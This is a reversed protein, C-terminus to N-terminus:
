VIACGVKRSPGPREGSVEVHKGLLIEERSDGGSAQTLEPERAGWVGGM